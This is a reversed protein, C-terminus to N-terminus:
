LQNMAEAIFLVLRILCIGMKALKGNHVKQPVDNELVLAKICAM